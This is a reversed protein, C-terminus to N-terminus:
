EAVEFIHHPPRVREGPVVRFGGEPAFCALLLKADLERNVAEVPILL